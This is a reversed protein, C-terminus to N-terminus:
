QLTTIRTPNLFTCSTSAITLTEMLNATNRLTITSPSGVLVTSSFTAAAIGAPAVTFFRVPNTSTCFLPGETSYVKGAVLIAQTYIWVPTSNYRVAKFAFAVGVVCLLAIASLIIRAKKM